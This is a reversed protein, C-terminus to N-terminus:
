PAGNAKSMAQDGKILAEWAKSRTPFFSPDRQILMAFLGDIVERMAQCAALLDPAAAILRANALQEEKVARDAEAEKGTWWFAMDAIEAGDLTEIALDYGYRFSRKDNSPIVRCIWPGPTAKSM